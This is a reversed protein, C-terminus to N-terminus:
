GAGHVGPAAPSPWPRVSAPPHPRPASMRQDKVRRQDAPGSSLRSPHPALADRFVARPQQSLALAAAARTAVIAPLSLPSLPSCRRGTASAHHACRMLFARIDSTDIVAPVYAPRALQGSVQSAACLRPPECLFSPKAARGVSRPPLTLPSCAPCGASYVAPAANDRRCPKPPPYRHGPAITLPTILSTNLATTCVPTPLTFSGGQKGM